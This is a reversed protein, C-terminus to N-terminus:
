AARRLDNAAMLEAYRGHIGPVDLYRAEIELIMSVTQRVDALIEAEADTLM